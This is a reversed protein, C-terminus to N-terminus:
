IKREVVVITDNHWGGHPVLLIEIIEFGYKKGIGGSNWGCTIVIGGKKVIRSIEKKQNTWYSAQTTQMNVAMNLKKYCESVQRPSYPPDYLVMDVSNKNFMKLFDLADLHYNTDYQTDLDNTINAIKNKNAFPDIVIGDILYKNIIEKIPKIDFTNKNPMSWVRNIIM